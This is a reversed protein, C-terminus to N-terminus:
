SLNFLPYAIAFFLVCSNWFNRWSMSLLKIAIIEIVDEV